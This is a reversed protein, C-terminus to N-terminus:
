MKLLNVSSKLTSWMFFFKYTKMIEYIMSQVQCVISIETEWLHDM